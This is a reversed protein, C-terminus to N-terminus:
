GLKFYAFLARIMESVRRLLEVAVLENIPTEKRGMFVVSTVRVDM